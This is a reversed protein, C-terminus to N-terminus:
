AERLEFDNDILSEYQVTVPLLWDQVGNEQPQLGYANERTIRKIKRNGTLAPYETLQIQSGNLVAPERCIWKGLTDLFTQISLKYRERDSAIRYVVFFPYRCTQHYRGLIDERETYILAGSDASFAIGGDDKLEEYKISEGDPLGPYQNLLSRMAATLIEFGEADKGIIQDM